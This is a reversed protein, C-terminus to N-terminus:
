TGGGSAPGDDKFGPLFQVGVTPVIAPRWVFGCGQCAHTHHPKTAFVGRDVHRAACAPCWLLMPVALPVSTAPASKMRAALAKVADLWPLTHGYRQQMEDLSMGLGGAQPEVEEREELPVTEVCRVSEVKEGERVQGVISPCQATLSAASVSAEGEPEEGAARARWEEKSIFKTAGVRGAARAEHDVVEYLQRLSALAVGGTHGEISVVPTGDRLRWPKSRTRTRVGALGPTTFYAVWTGSAIDEAVGPSSLHYTAAVRGEGVAGGSTDEGGSERVGLTKEGGSERVATRASARDDKTEGM